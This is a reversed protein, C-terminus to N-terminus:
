LFALLLLDVGEILLDARLKGFHSKLIKFNIYFNNIISFNHPISYLSIKAYYRM